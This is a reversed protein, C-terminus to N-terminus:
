YGTENLHMKSHISEFKRNSLKIYISLKNDKMFHYDKKTYGHWQVVQPASM